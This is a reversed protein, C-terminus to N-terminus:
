KKIHKSACIDLYKVELKRYNSYAVGYCVNFEKLKTLGIYIKSITERFFSKKLGPSFNNYEDVDIISVGFFSLLKFGFIKVITKLRIRIEEDVIHHLNYGVFSLENMKTSDYLKTIITGFNEITVPIDNKKFLKLLSNFKVLYFTYNEYVKFINKIDPYKIPDYLVNNDDFAFKIINNDIIDFNNSTRFVYHIREFFIDFDIDKNIYELYANRITIDANNDTNNCTNNDESHKSNKNKYNIFLDVNKNDNTNSETNIKEQEGM